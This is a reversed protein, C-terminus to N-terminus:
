VSLLWWIDDGTPGPFDGTLVANAAGGEGIRLDKVSPGAEDPDDLSGLFFSAVIVLCLGSTSSATDDGPVEPERGPERPPTEAVFNGMLALGLSDLAARIADVAVPFADVAGLAGDLVAGSADVAVLFACVAGLALSDLLAGIADVAVMLAGVAGLAGGVRGCDGGLSAISLESVSSISDSEAALFPLTSTEEGSDAEGVEDRDAEGVGAVDEECGSCGDDPGLGWLVLVALFRPWGLVDESAVGALRMRLVGWDRAAGRAEYLAAERTPSNVYTTEGRRRAVVVWRVFGEGSDLLKVVDM